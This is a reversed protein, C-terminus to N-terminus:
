SCFVKTFEGSFNIETLIDELNFSFQLNLMLSRSHTFYFYFFHYLVKNAFAM